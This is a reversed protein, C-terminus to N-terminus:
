ADVTVKTVRTVRSGVEPARPTLLFNDLTDLIKGTM